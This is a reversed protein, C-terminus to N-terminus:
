VAVEDGDRAVSVDGEFGAARIRDPIDEEFPEFDDNIHTVILRPLGTGRLAAGLEEAEFHALEIVALDIGDVRDAAEGPGALDGSFLLKRNEFEVRYSFSQCERDIGMQRLREAAAALHRNPVAEVSLEDDRYVPGAQVPRVQFDFGLDAPFKYFLSLTQQFLAVEEAPLHFTLPANRQNLQHWQVLMPLGGTHDAHTHTVFVSRLTETSLGRKPFEATVGEGADFLYLSGSRWLGIATTRPRKETPFGAASGFFTLVNHKAM